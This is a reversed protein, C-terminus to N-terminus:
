LRVEKLNTRGWLNLVAMHTIDAVEGANSKDFENKMIAIVSQILAELILVNRFQESEINESTTIEITVVHEGEGVNDITETIIKNM